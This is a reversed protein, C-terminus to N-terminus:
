GNKKVRALGDAFNEADDFQPNIVYAGTTDIFGWSKLTRVPALWNCCKEKKPPTERPKEQPDVVPISPKAKEKTKGKGKNGTQSHATFAMLVALIIFIKKM